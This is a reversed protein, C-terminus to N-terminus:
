RSGEEVEVDQAGPASPAPVQHLRSRVRGVLRDRLALGRRLGERVLWLVALLVLLELLAPLVQVVPELPGILYGAISGSM